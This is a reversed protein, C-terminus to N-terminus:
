FGVHLDANHHRCTRCTRLYPSDATFANGCKLCTRHWKRQATTEHPLYFRRHQGWGETRLAGTFKLHAIANGVRGVAIGIEEGIEGNAIHREGRAIMRQIFHLVRHTTPGPDIDTM